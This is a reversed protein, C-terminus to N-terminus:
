RGVRIPQRLCEDLPMDGSVRFVEACSESAATILDEVASAALVPVESGARRLATAKGGEVERGFSAVDVVVAVPRRGDSGLDLAVTALAKGDNWAWTPFALLVARDPGLRDTAERAAEVLTLGGAPRLHALWRLLEAPAPESLTDLIGDMGACLDVPQGRELALIAVSAAASCCADLPTGETGLDASTDILIALRQPREQEFERVMLSGHRASSPWHVHRPSDGTRYERIGLYDQGTGRRHTSTAPLGPENSGEVGPFWALPVVKPYILTAGGAAVSRRATAVGLPGSSSVELTGGQVPGRRSATRVTAFVVEEAAELHPLFLRTPTMYPDTISLSLRAHHADGRLIVDVSVEEGQYAHPPVRREATVGRVMRAPLAWGAFAVALLLSALVFLWGAQVNTGVAFVLVSGGVLALARRRPRPLAM